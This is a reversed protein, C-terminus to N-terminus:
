MLIKHQFMREDVFTLLLAPFSISVKM